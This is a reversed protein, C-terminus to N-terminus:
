NLIWSYVILVEAVSIPGAYKLHVMDTQPFLYWLM